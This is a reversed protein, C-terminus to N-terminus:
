ATLRLPCGAKAPKHKESWRETVVEVDVTIPVFFSEKDEMMRVIREIVRLPVDIPVQFVLEDHITLIMKVTPYFRRLWRWIRVMAHKIIDAATGQCMYNLAKYSFKSPIHYRRKFMSEVYGERAIAQKLQGTLRKVAPFARHFSAVVQTAELKTTPLGNRTLTEAQKPPGSGYLVGFGTAKARKRQEKTVEAKPKKYVQTAVFLHIDDDLAERMRVDRAQHVFMRMEIQSYDCHWNRMGPRVVFCERPGLQRPMNQLNPESSSFRGTKAEAQNFRCYLIGYERGGTGRKVNVANEIIADYYTSIMKTLEGHKLVLPPLMERPSLKYKKVTAITEDILKDASWNEEGSRRLMEALPRSVYRMMAYEDFSWRGGGKMEGTRKDRKPQTRYKLEIGLKRFAAELQQASGPNFEAAPVVENYPETYSEGRRKRKKVKPITLEGVLQELHSRIRKLSIEARGKLQKAQTVDVMVGTTEMDVCVYALVRENEYLDPCVTAIRDKFFFYLLLTHKVDWVCRRRLIDDPVDGFNFKRGRAKVFKPKNREALWDIIEDKDSTDADLLKFALEHLDHGWGTSNVVKSMLMTCEVRAGTDLLDLVKISETKLMMTLEFKANHCIITKSRDSFLRRMWSHAGPHSRPVYGWEGTEDYWAFCVLKAGQWWKVGTTEIDFAV